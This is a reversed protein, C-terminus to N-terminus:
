EIFQDFRWTHGFQTISLPSNAMPLNLDWFAHYRDSCTLKIKDILYRSGGPVFLQNYDAEITPVTDLEVTKYNTTKIEDIKFIITRIM